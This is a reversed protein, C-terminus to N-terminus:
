RTRHYRTRDDEKPTVDEGIPNTNNVLKAEEDSNDKIPEGKKCFFSVIFDM